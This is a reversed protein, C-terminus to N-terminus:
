SSFHYMSSYQPILGERFHQSIIAPANNRIRTRKEQEHYAQKIITSIQDPNLDAVWGLNHKSVFPALGVHSSIAVPTGVTLSEGVANAFNENYSFLVLLDNEQLVNYKHTDGIRGVWKIKSFIGLMEAMKKLREEYRPKGTGAITLTWPFNCASLADFLLELGKKEEIRSFFLLKFVPSQATDETVLEFNPPLPTMLNPIVTINLQKNITLIDQREKESTAHISCYPLLTKGISFHIFSKLIGHRNSFSYPTLMGRPSLIVPINKLKAILCSLLSTLNWWSHIHIITDSPRKAVLQHLYGLLAPSLHTHDKTIRRFYTVKVGDSQTPRSTEVWLEEKGNATTTLVEITQGSRQQAECLQAISSITGGYIFAPKYSPTIHIITM